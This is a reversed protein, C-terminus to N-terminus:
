ERLRIRREDRQRLHPEFARRIADSEGAPVLVDPSLSLGADQDRWKNWVVEAAAPRQAPETTYDYGEPTLDSMARLSRDAVCRVAAYPDDLLQGLVPAIWNTGSAHLAPPWSFHWALLARQGADGSLALRVADATGRQAEDLTAAPQRYWETLKAATWALPKDLHCLNCANPRGTALQDAAKPNSIQHSRIAKLVGYTTHPMHCNYCESGTSDARHHTHAQLAAPERFAEHCQICARNDTRNRALLDDPESEHLSHCSLCSFKGGQHCPSEILGNYERGSVRIMGDKWFFDELLGPNRALYDKLGPTTDARSPRIVPTTADLEDGPRFRFGDKHWPESRDIWKMSHCFGCTQSARSPELKEPHVIEGRLTADDPPSTRDLAARRAEVHRQGPGHCAECAIGLEGARSDMIRNVGDVRPEIGTAHCRSCVINWVESRHEMDPPRIFTSNRPVWRQEPILWTFPFGVQVNGNGGPVWFVQMHHSGTVLGFRVDYPEAPADPALHEMRVWLENSRQSLQFRTTDNTLTVNHFNARVTQPSAFQTMTRHYSRHWSAHQDEHCSRCESSGVYGAPGGERPLSASFDETSNASVAEASGAPQSLAAQKDGERSCGLGAALWLTLGLIGLKLHHVPKEHELAGGTAVPRATM